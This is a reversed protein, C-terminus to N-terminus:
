VQEPVLLCGDCRIRVPEFGPSVGGHPELDEPAEFIRVRRQAVTVHDGDVDWVELHLVGCFLELDALTRLTEAQNQPPPRPSEGVVHQGVIVDGRPRHLDLDFGGRELKKCRRWDRPNPTGM